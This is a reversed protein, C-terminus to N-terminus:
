GAGCPSRRGGPDAEMRGHELLETVVPIRSEQPDLEVGSRYAFVVAEARTRVQLKSLAHRVHTEVTNESLCLRAMIERNTCAQALLALVQAERPSLAALRSGCEEWWRNAEAMQVSTWLRYGQAVARVHAAITALDAQEPVLGLAGVQLMAYAGAADSPVGLALIHAVLRAECLQQALRAGDARGPLRCALLVVDPRCRRAARLAEGAAGTEDAVRAGAEALVTCIGSRLAPNAHVVLVTTM